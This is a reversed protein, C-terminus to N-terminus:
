YVIKKIVKINTLTQRASFVILFMNLINSNRIYLKTHNLLQAVKIFVKLISTYIHVIYM